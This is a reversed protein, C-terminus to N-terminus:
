QLTLTDTPAKKNLGAIYTKVLQKRKADFSITGILVAAAVKANRKVLWLYKRSAWSIVVKALQYEGPAYRRKQGLKVGLVNLLFGLIPANAFHPGKEISLIEEYLLRRLKFLIISRTKTDHHSFFQSWVINHQITWSLSGRIKVWAAHQIIEFMLNALHDYYDSRWHYSPDHRRMRTKQVGYNEILTIAKNVFDVAVQLRERIDESEPGSPLDNLRHLDSSSHGIVDFARNLAFSHNHFGREDLAGKFTTLVARTYAKLQDSDFHWRVDLDVDLPSNGQSLAEVLRFDGYVAHTFPRVYGFFGSYYGETEHYILSDKNLLAETSINTAFQGIPLRYKEQSSMERFFSIATGPASAIIHRCFKRIAILLLIDNAYHEARMQESPSRAPHPYERAFKIITRASRGLETAVFPLDSEAGQLLYRYLTRTFNRANLRGFKPPNVFAFWLWTLVMFLFLSGLLTQLGARSPLFLPLPYNRAFWFDTILCAAGIFASVVFTVKWLPIPATEIRFRIRVESVTFILVLLAFAQVFEAFGFIGAAQDNPVALCM